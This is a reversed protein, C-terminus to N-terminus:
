WPVDMAEPCNWKMTAYACSCFNKSGNGRWCLSYLVGRTISEVVQHLSRLRVCALEYLWSTSWIKVSSTTAVVGVAQVQHLLAEMEVVHPGIWKCLARPFDCAGRNWVRALEASEIENGYVPMANVCTMWMRFTLWVCVANYDCHTTSMVHSWIEVSCTKWHGWGNPSLPPAGGNWGWTSWDMTYSNRPLDCAGRDQAGDIETPVKACGYM